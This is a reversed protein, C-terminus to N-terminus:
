KRTHRSLLRLVNSLRDDDIFGATQALLSASKSSIYRQNASKKECGLGAEPQIQAPRTLVQIHKLSVPILTNLTTLRISSLRETHLFKILEPALQRLKTAWVPSDTLVFLTQQTIKVVQFHPHVSGPLIQLLSHTILSLNKARSLM